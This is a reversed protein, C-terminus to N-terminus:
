SIEELPGVYKEAFLLDIQLKVHELIDNLVPM